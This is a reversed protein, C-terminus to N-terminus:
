ADGDGDKRRCEVTGAFHSWSIPMWALDFRQKLDETLAARYCSKPCTRKNWDACHTADHNM